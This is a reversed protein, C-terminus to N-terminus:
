LGARASNEIFRFAYALTENLSMLTRGRLTREWVDSPRIFSDRKGCLIRM